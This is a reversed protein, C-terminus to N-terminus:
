NKEVWGIGASTMPWDDTRFVAAPLGDGDVLNGGSPTEAWSYRVAVPAPVKPSSVLVTGNDIEADAWEWKRDEGAIAFGGLKDGKASLGKAHDFTLRIKGGEIKMSQYLPGSYAVDQGYVTALAAKALRHGVPLKDLYHVDDNVRMLDNTVVMATHPNTLARRQVDKLESGPNDAPEGQYAKGSGYAIQVFLIPLDPQKWLDRWDKMWASFRKAYAEAMGSDNEGQYWLIGRIAYPSIPEILGDFHKAPFNMPEANRSLRPAAPEPKGAAVAAAKDKKWKEIQGLAKTIALLEPVNEAQDSTTADLIAKFSPDSQQTKLSTWTSIFTGGRNALILGVPVGLKQNLDIGFAFQIGVWNALKKPDGGSVASVWNVKGLRQTGDTAQAPQVNIARVDPFNANRAVEEGGICSLLPGGMNSQGSLLWVEGALLNKVTLEKSKNSATLTYTPGSSIPDFVVEWRGHENTTAEKKQDGLTVVIKDGAKAWGWVPLPKDRQLIAGDQFVSGFAFEGAPVTNVNSTQTASLLYGAKLDSLRLEKGDVKALAAYVGETPLKISLEKTVPKDTKPFELTGVTETTETLENRLLIEYTAADSGGGLFELQVAGGPAAMRSSKVNARITGEPGTSRQLEWIVPLAGPFGLRRYRLTHPGKTLFLNVEKYTPGNKAADTLQDEPKAVGLRVITEGDIAIDRAWDPPNGGANLEYWGTEPISFDYEAWGTVSMGRNKAKVEAITKENESFKSRDYDWGSKRVVPDAAHAVSVAITLGAWFLSPVIRRPMSPLIM